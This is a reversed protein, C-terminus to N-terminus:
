YNVTTREDYNVEEINGNNIRYIKSARNITEPRHAITLITMDKSLRGVSSCIKRESINDLASTAEDLVLFSPNNVLARAILLRQIQGGSLGVGNDGLVTDFGNPLSVIYDYIDALKCASILIDDNSHKCSLTLNDRISMNFLKSEQMVVGARNYLSCMEMDNIASGGILVKGGQPSILGLLIKAVTTKGAGSEGVLAVYDGRSLFLNANQLIECESEPYKFSIKNLEIPFIGNEKHKASLREENFSLTEFIRDYYPLNERLATEKRYVNVIEIFLMSFYEGFLILNGVTLSKNIVFFAGIIHVIVCSLYNSNFDSLTERFFWYRIQVYGLKALKKRYESFKQVFRAEACLVKIERWRGISDNEFSSYEENVCRIKENIKGSGKAIMKDIIMVAPILCICCITMVPNIYVCILLLILSMIIGCFYDIVQEKAFNGLKDVDDWIRLKYEAANRCYYNEYPMKLIKSLLETRINYTFYNLLKNDFYLKVGDIILRLFYTVLLGCVVFLLMGRKRQAVVDDVLIQFMKPSILSVPISAICCVTLLIWSFISKYVYRKTQKFVKLRTKIM